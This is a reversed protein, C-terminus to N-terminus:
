YFHLANSADGSFGSVVLTYNAMLDEIRFVEYKAYATNGEWDSLEVRLEYSAQGTILHLRQNGTYIYLFMKCKSICM